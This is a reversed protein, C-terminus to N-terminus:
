KFFSYLLGLGGGFIIMFVWNFSLLKLREKLPTNPITSWAIFRKNSDFPLKFYDTLNVPSLVMEGKDNPRHLVGEMSLINILWSTFGLLSGGLVSYVTETM